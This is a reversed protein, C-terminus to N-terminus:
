KQLGLIIIHCRRCFYFFTKFGSVTQSLNLQFNLTLPPQKEGGSVNSRNSSLIIIREIKGKKLYKYQM